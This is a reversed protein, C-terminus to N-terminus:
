NRSCTKKLKQTYSYNTTGHNNIINLYINTNLDNKLRSLLSFVTHNDIIGNYKLSCRM